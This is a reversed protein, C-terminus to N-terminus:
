RRLASTLYTLATEIATANPQAPLRRLFFGPRKGRTDSLEAGVPITDVSREPM